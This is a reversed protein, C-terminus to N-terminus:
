RRRVLETLEHRSRTATKAYIKSLHFAVTSRSLFLERAIQAYSLGQTLLAAVERERDSLPALPDATPVILYGAGEIRALRDDYERQAGAAGTEDGLARRVRALDSALLAAHIHLAALGRARADGLQRAAAELDGAAEAALGRLWAVGADRWGVPSPNVALRDALDHVAATRHAAANIMGLTLQWLAPETGRWTITGFHANLEDLYRTQGAHQGTLRLCVFETTVATSIAEPWPAERLVSRAEARHRALTGPDGAALDALVAVARVMPNAAGYRAGLSARIVERAEPWDGRLWHAYGLLAHFEGDGVTVLGDDIQATFPKLNRVALDPLGAVAAAVGRWADGLELGGAVHAPAGATGADDALASAFGFYASLCPEAALDASAVALEHRVREAPGGTVAQIWACLIRLRLRTRRDTADILATPISLFVASARSWRRRGVLVFGEVLRRRAEDHAYGVRALRHEVSDFDRAMVADFLADLFRRERVVPDSTAASAWLGVQGAQRFRRALHMSWAAAELEAALEDDHGHAALFRHRLADVPSDVLTAARHHLARRNAPPITAAIATRVVGSAARVEPRGQRGRTVLLGQRCLREVADCCDDLGALAGATPSLTWRDGLVVVARLVAAGDADLRELRTALARALDRPAPLEEADRVAELTHEHVIARLFLPNGATHAWLRDCLAPDAAPWTTTVLEAVASRDLGTLEIRVARDADLALRHWPELSERALSDAAVAVLLRDSLTREVLRAIMDSSEADLSQLDDVAILVPAGSRAKQIWSRLMRAAQLSTLGPDPPGDLVGWEVLAAYPQQWDSDAHLYLPHFGPASAAVHRLLSSKGTGPAGEVLLVTPIGDAARGVAEDLAADQEVSWRLAHGARSSGSQVNRVTM